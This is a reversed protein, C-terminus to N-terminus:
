PSPEPQPDNGLHNTEPQNRDIPVAWPKTSMAKTGCPRGFPRQPAALTVYDSPSRTLGMSTHNQQASRSNPLKSTAAPLPYSGVWPWHDAAPAQGDNQGDNPRLQSPNSPGFSRSMRSVFPNRPYPLAIEGDQFGNLHLGGPTRIGRGGGILKGVPSQSTALM